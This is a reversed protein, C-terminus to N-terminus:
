DVTIRERIKKEFNNKKEVKRNKKENLKKKL